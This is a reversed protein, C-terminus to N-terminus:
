PKVVLSRGEISFHVESIELGRLVESLRLDRRMKGVFEFPPIGNEYKVEIDYWRELQRMVEELKMDSFDFVGEKWAIVKKLNVQSIIKTHGSSQAQQGPKLLQYNEGNYVKVSGELLTTNISAEQAYANVNFHTGLVEIKKNSNKIIVTFPRRPDKAVEFYAEGTIEVERTNGTFATPFRISSAADLWVKSSDPLVLQFQRGRPTSMTNYTVADTASNDRDYSIRGNNLLVKAGNQTAILGENMSDLVITSNDDLTLIAGMHGPPLDTTKAIVSPVPKVSATEKTFLWSAAIFLMVAAAVSYRFFSKRYFPITVVQSEKGLISPLRDDLQQLIQPNISQLNQHRQLQKQLLERMAPDSEAASLLPLIEQAEEPSLNGQLLREFLDQQRGPSMM